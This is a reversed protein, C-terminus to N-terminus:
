AAEPSPFKAKEKLFEFAIEESPFDGFEKWPHNGDEEAIHESRLIQGKIETTKWEVSKGQTTASDAKVDFKVRNFWIARYFPKGNNQHKEILGVGKELSTCEDDFIYTNYSQSNVMVSKTKLKYLLNTTEPTLDGTALTLTGGAFSSNDTEAVQNDLYLYNTEGTNFEASYSALKEQNVGNKYTVTNGVASYDALVLKSLGITAM